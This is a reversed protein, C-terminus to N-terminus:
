ARAAENFGWRKGQQAYLPFSNRMGRRTPVTQLPKSKKKGSKDKGSRRKNDQASVVFEIKGGENAPKVASKVFNDTRKKLNPPHCGSLFDQALCGWKKPHKGAQKVTIFFEVGVVFNEWETTPDEKIKKERLCVGGKNERHQSSVIHGNQRDRATPYDSHTRSPLAVTKKSTGEKQKPKLERYITVEGNAMQHRSYTLRRKIMRNEAGRSKGGSGRKARFGGQGM